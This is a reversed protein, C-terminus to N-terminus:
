RPGSRNRAVQLLALYLVLFGLLLVLASVFLWFTLNTLVTFRNPGNSLEWLPLGIGVAAFYILIAIAIWLRADPKSIAEWERRLRAAEDEVDEFHQQAREDAVLLDRYATGRMATIAPPTVPGLFPISPAPYLQRALERGRRDEPDELDRERRDRAQQYVFGWVERWVQDDLPIQEEIDQWQPLQRTRRSLFQEAFARAQELQAEAEKILDGLEEDSLNCAQIARLRDPTAAGHSIAEIVHPDGLLDQRDDDVVRKHALAARERATALRQEAEVLLKQASQQDSDLGVFRAVLLGGVIAVLAGSTGVVTALFTAPDM